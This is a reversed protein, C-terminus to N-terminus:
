SSEVTGSPEIFILRFLLAIYNTLTAFVTKELIDVRCSYQDVLSVNTSQCKHLPSFFVFHVLTLFTRGALHSPHSSSTGESSSCTPSASLPWCTTSCTTCRGSVSFNSKKITLGMVSSILKNTRQKEKTQKHKEIM